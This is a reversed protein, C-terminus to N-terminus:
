LVTLAAVSTTATGLTNTFVARYKYGNKSATVNTLTLTTTSTAGSVNTFTIGGDSGAPRSYATAISPRSAHTSERVPRAIQDRSSAVTVFVASSTIEDGASSGPRSLSPESTHRSYTPTVSTDVPRTPSSIQRSSRM